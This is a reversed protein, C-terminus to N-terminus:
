TQNIILDVVNIKTNGRGCKKQANCVGSKCDEDIQCPKNNLFKGCITFTNCYNTTCDNNNKCFEGDSVSFLPLFFM